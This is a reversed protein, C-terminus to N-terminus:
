RVSTHYDERDNQPGKRGTPHSPSIFRRRYDRPPVGLQRIFARRLHELTGFGCAQVIDAIRLDSEELLRRAADVRAREVFKGPSLDAEKRFARAFNRPSMACREALAEIRLDKDLNEPIWHQLDRLCPRAAPRPELHVSFQSQGGPRKLFVVMQRAAQRAVEAGLDEEVLALALDIGSCVGASTRILGDRVFIADPDVSVEPYDAALQACMSWHTTAKRGDLLGAEALLFAGTCVSGLRRVKHSMARLWSLLDSDTLAAEYGSGGAILLTDIPEELEAYAHEALLALGSSSRVPGKDTAAITLDYAGPGDRHLDWLHRNATDFVQLPGAADLLNVQDYVVM